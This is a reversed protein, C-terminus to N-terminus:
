LFSSIANTPHTVACELTDDCKLALLEAALIVFKASLDPRCQLSAEIAAGRCESVLEGRNRLGRENRLKDALDYIQNTVARDTARRHKEAQKKSKENM